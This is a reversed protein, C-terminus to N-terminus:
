WDSPPCPCRFRGTDSCATPLSESSCSATPPSTAATFCYIHLTDGYSLQEALRESVRAPPKGPGNRFRLRDLNDVVDPGADALPSRSVNGVRGVASSCVRHPNHGLPNM